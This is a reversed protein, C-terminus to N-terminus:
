KQGRNHGDKCSINGQYRYKEQLSIKRREWEIIKRQKKANIVSFAKKDKRAIRQFGTIWGCQGSQLQQVHLCTRQELGKNKYDGRGPLHKGWIHLTQVKM